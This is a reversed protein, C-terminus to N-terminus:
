RKASRLYLFLNYLVCLIAKSNDKLFSRLSQVTSVTRTGKSMRSGSRLTIDALARNQWTNLVVRPSVSVLSDIIKSLTLPIDPSKPFQQLFYYRIVVRNIIKLYLM